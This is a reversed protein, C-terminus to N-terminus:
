FIRRAFDALDERLKIRIKNWEKLPHLLIELLYVALFYIFDQGVRYIMIFLNGM